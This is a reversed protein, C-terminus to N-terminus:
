HSVAQGIFGKAKLLPRPAVYHQDLGCREGIGLAVGVLQTFYLIPIERFGRQREKLVEQSHDLNFHCLPCSVVVAEAGNRVASSLIVRAREVAVEQSSVALYSGCCETKYPFDFVSGGVNRVLDELIRPNEPNDLGIAEYPRLLLCGYYPAVTLGKLKMRVKNKIAEFGIVDRLVELLHLVKVTGMYTEEIFNNITDRKKIDDRVIKNSRKLINYCFACGTVLNNGRRGANALNRVPALLKIVDDTLLPPVAGCCVWGPLEDLEVGLSAM